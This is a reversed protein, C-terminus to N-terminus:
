LPISNVANFDINAGQFARNKLKGKTKKFSEGRTDKLKEYGFKGWEDGGQGYKFKAEFTNDRLKEPIFGIEDPNIRSFSKGYIKQSNDHSRTHHSIDINNKM